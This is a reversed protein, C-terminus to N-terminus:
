QGATRGATRRTLEPFEWYTYDLRVNYNRFTTFTLGEITVEQGSPAVGLLPRNQVGRVEWHSIVQCMGRRKATIQPAVVAHKVSLQIDDLADLYTLRMGLDMFDRETKERRYGGPEHLRELHATAQRAFDEEVEEMVSHFLGVIGEDTTPDVDSAKQDKDVKKKRTFLSV